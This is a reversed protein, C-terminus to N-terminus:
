RPLTGLSFFAVSPPPLPPPPSYQPYPHTLGGSPPLTLGMMPVVQLAPKHLSVGSLCPQLGWVSCQTGHSLYFAKKKVTSRRGLLCVLPLILYITLCVGPMEGASGCPSQPHLALCVCMQGKKGKGLFVTQSCLYLLWTFLDGVSQFSRQVSHRPPVLPVPSWVPCVGLRDM